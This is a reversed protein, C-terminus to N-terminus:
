LRCPRSRRRHRVLARFASAGSSLFPHLHPRSPRERGLVVRASRGVRPICALRAHVGTECVERRGSHSRRRRCRRHCALRNTTCPTLRSLPRPALIPTFTDGRFQEPCVASPAFLGVGRRRQTVTQASRWDAESTCFVAKTSRKRCASRNSIESGVGGIVTAQRNRQM